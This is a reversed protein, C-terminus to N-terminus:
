SPTTLAASLPSCPTSLRSALRSLSGRSMPTAANMALSEVRGRDDGSGGLYTSYLLQSGNRTLKAVFADFFGGGLAPQVANVTPFDTSETLGTVYANGPGDAAIGSGVEAGSGGLYTSYLLQSGNRNLKAVFADPSVGLAPQVANVTPFDTSETFGTVYANGRNDAAIGTGFDGESGGLYTSYLLQSGNRSLKAVFADNDGGGFAPQVANVTPFNTSQTRGTVYANGRNDVAIGRGEDGGSGGLYTSYVLVPDIVLPRSTDYAAVAFSVQQPEELVYGGAVTTRVGATEQYIVPAHM